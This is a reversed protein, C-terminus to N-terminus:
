GFPRFNRRGLERKQYRDVIQSVERDSRISGQVIINTVSSASNSFSNSTSVSNSAPTINVSEPGAEGALFLTPSKVQGNFGNAAAILPIQPAPISVRPLTVGGGGTLKSLASLAAEVAAIIGNIFATIGDTIGKMAVNAITAFGNWFAIFGTTISKWASSFARVITNWIGTLVIDLATLGASINSYVTNLTNQLNDLARKTRENQVEFPDKGPNTILPEIIFGGAFGALIGSLSALQTIYPALKPAATAAAVGMQSIGTAISFMKNIDEQKTNENLEKLKAQEVNWEGLAQKAQPSDTGFQRVADNYNRQAQAVANQQEILGSKNSNFALIALNITNIGSALGSVVSGVASAARGFERLAPHSAEVIKRHLDQASRLDNIEKKLDKVGKTYQEQSIKGQQLQQNLEAFRQKVSEAGVQSIRWELPVTAM